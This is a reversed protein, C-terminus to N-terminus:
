CVAVSMDIPWCRLCCRWRMETRSLMASTTSRDLELHRKARLLQQVM